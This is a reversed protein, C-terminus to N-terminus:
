FELQRTRAAALVKIWNAKTQKDKWVKVATYLTFGTDSM